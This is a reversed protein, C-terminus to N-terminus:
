ETVEIVAKMYPHPTCHYSYSGVTDFTASYSEGKALLKSRKFMEGQKDPAIDHRASDQNTWTVTTGKKVTLKAPTFEFNSIAVENAKPKVAQMSDDRTNSMDNQTKGMNTEGSMASVVFVGVLLVALLSLIITTKQKM